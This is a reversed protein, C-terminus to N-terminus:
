KLMVMNIPSSIHVPGYAPKITKAIKKAPMGVISQTNATLFLLLFAMVAMM